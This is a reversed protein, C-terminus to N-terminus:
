DRFGVAIADTKPDRLPNLHIEVTGEDPSDKFKWKAFNIKQRVIEDALIEKLWSQTDAVNRTRLFSVVNERLNNAQTDLQLTEALDDLASLPSQSEDSLSTVCKTNRDLRTEFTNESLNLDPILDLHFLYAGAEVWSAGDNKLALLYKIQQDVPLRRISAQSFVKKAIESGGDPLADVMARAHSRLVNSPDYTKFTQIDYSDEAPLRLGQPIFAVLVGFKERNRKEILAGSEIELGNSAQEALVYAEVRHQKLTADNSIRECIMRMVEVPLFEVRQCHNNEKDLLFDRLHAFVAEAMEQHFLERNVDFM